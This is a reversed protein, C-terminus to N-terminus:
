LFIELLYYDLYKKVCTDNLVEPYMLSTPCGDEFKTEKHSRKLVCHGLEHYMLILRREYSIFEFYYKDIYVTNTIHNCLGVVKDPLIEFGINTNVPKGYLREFDQVFPKLDQDIGDISKLACSPNTLFITSILLLPYLIVRILIGYNM